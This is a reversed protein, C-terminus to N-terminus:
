GCDAVSAKKAEAHAIVRRCFELLEEPTMEHKADNDYTGILDWDLQEGTWHDLGVSAVVANRIAIRYEQV